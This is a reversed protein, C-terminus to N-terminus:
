SIEKSHVIGAFLLIVVGIFIASDAINFAPWHYQRVYFDLFDAVAGFRLRDVINGAAGGIVFGLAIITSREQTRALWALLLMAVAIVCLMLLHAMSQWRSLMGFSIGTNWTLVLRFFPLIPRPFAGRAAASVIVAKSAQDLAAVALALLVGGLRTKVHAHNMRFAKCFGTALALRM